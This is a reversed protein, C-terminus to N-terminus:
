GAETAVLVAAVVQVVVVAVIVVKIVALHRNAEKLERGMATLIETETFSQEDTM